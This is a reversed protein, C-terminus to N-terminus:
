LTNLHEGLLKRMLASVNVGSRVLIDYEDAKIRITVPHLRTKGKGKKGAERGSDSNFPRLGTTNPTKNPM